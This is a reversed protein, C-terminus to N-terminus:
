DASLLESPWLKRLEALEEATFEPDGSIAAMTTDWSDNDARPTLLVGVTTLTDVDRRVALADHHRLRVWWGFVDALQPNHPRSCVAYGLHAEGVGGRLSRMRWVSDPSSENLLEDM